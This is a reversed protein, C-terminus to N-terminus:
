TGCRIWSVVHFTVFVYYLMVFLLWSTLEKEAPSWLATIFLRSLIFFVFYSLPCPDHISVTLVEIVCILGFNLLQMVGCFWSVAGHPLTM